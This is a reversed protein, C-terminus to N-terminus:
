SNKWCVSAHCELSKLICMIDYPKNMHIQIVEMKARLLQLLIIRELM